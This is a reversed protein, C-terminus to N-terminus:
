KLTYAEIANSMSKEFADFDFECNVKVGAEELDNVSKQLSLLLAGLQECRDFFEKPVLSMIQKEDNAFENHSSFRSTVGTKSYAPQLNAADANQEENNKQELM